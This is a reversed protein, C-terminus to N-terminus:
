NGLDLSNGRISAFSFRLDAFDPNNPADLDANPVSEILAGFRHDSNRVFTVEVVRPFAFGGLQCLGGCNNGHLHIPTFVARLRRLVHQARASWENQWAHHLDHFEVILQSVRSWYADPVSELVEWENGEIDIKVVINSMGRLGDEDFISKLSLEDPTQARGVVRKRHFHFLPGECNDPQEVTHDYQWIPIGREALSTDWSADVGIGLSVAAETDAFAEAM